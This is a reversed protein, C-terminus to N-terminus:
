KRSSCFSAALTVPLSQPLAFLGFKDFNYIPSCGLGSIKRAAIEQTKFCKSVTNKVIAVAKKAFSTSPSTQVNNKVTGQPDDFGIPNNGVYVYANLDDDTGAPDSGLWRCILPVYYRHQCYYFTTENDREKGAYRYRKPAKTFYAEYVTSGFATCAELSLINGDPDLELVISSCYSSCQYRVLFAPLGKSARLSEEWQEM